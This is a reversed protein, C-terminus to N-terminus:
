LNERHDAVFEPMGDFDAFRRADDVLRRHGSEVPPNAHLAAPAGRAGAVFRSVRLDGTSIDKPLEGAPGNRRFSQRTRQALTPRDQDARVTGSRDRAPPTRSM